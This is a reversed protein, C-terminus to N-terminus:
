RVLMKKYSIKYSTGLSDIFPTSIKIYIISDNKWRVEEPRWDGIEKTWINKPKKKDVMFLQIGNPDYGAELDMSYCIFYKNDPSFLPKSFLSTKVGNEKDLLEYEGGEYFSVEVLWSDIIDISELYKYHPCEECKEILLSDFGNRLHFTLIAGKRSVNLVDDITEKKSKLIIRPITKFENEDISDLHYIIKDILITDRNEPELKGDSSVNNTCGILAALILILYSKM